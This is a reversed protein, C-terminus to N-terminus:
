PLRRVRYFRTGPAAPDSDTVTADQGDGSVSGTPLPTWSGPALDVSYEVVYSQGAFTHFRIVPGQASLGISAVKLDIRIALSQYQGAAIAVVNSVGAPVSTEGYYNYGWGVVSGDTKLALSHNVGAAIAVVNSLVQGAIMVQGTASYPLSTTPVGTTQGYKNYGWGIVTSNSKLALSHFAGAAVAVVGDLVSPTTAQGYTNDGWGVVTGDSKLALSFGGPSSGGQVFPTTWGATSIAVVNTLGAPVNSEKGSPLSHGAALVTGNDKLALSHYTGAAFAIINTWSGVGNTEGYTNAGWATVTANKRLALRHENGVAVAAINTLGAPLSGGGNWDTVSGDNKLALSYGGGAALAVADSLPTNAQVSTGGLGWSVVAGDARLAFSRFGGAAIAVVNSLGPLVTSQSSTNDGWAYVTGDSLLALGHNDSGLAVALCNTPFNLFYSSASWAVITGNSRLAVSYDYGAALAAVNTALSPVYTTIGWSVVTGDQKRALSHSDGAAIATVNGLSIPVNTQHYTNEGWAVVTGNSRLALSHLGGAAVAVANTLGTPVTIQGYDNDGWAVGTSDNRLALSHNNLTNGNLGGGAAVAIVNSVSVPAGSLAGWEFVTGDSRLALSHDFGAAINTFVIGPMMVSAGWGLGVGVPQGVGLLPWAAGALIIWSALFRGPNSFWLTFASDTRPPVSSSRM